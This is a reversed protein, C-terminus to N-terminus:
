VYAQAGACGVQHLEVVRYHEGARNGLAGGQRIDPGVVAGLDHLSSVPHPKAAAAGHEGDGIDGSTVASGEHARHGIAHAM